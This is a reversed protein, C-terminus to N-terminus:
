KRLPTYVPRQGAEPQADVPGARLRPDHLGADLPLGPTDDDGPVTLHVQRLGAAM